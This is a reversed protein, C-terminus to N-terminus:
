CEGVVFRRKIGGIVAAERRLRNWTVITESADNMEKKKNEISETPHLKNVPRWIEKRTKSVRVVAGRASGDKGYIMREVLRIRWCFRSVKDEEILVVDGVSIMPRNDGKM